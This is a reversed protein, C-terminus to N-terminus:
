NVWLTECSDWSRWRTWSARWKVPSSSDSAHRVILDLLQPLGSQCEDLADVILYISKLNPDRLMDTLIGSLSFFVNSGEFLKRGAKDYQRRLHLILSPQQVLMQYILGRLVATANDLNPDTVQCFFFSQLSSDPSSRLLERIVGILLMTKGKGPDGKIWMLRTTEGDRWDIFHPHNLIWVYSKTLLLDKSDEIRKMDTAPDTLCMIELCENNKEAERIDRQLSAQEWLSNHIDQLLRTDQEHHAMTQQANYVYSDQLVATEAAQVDKLNGDWNDLRIIERLVVLGRNQYYSCVSKM